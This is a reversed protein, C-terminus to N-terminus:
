NAFGVHKRYCILTHFSPWVTKIWASVLHEFKDPCSIKETLQFQILLKQDHIDEADDQRKDNGIGYQEPGNVIGFQAVLSVVSFIGDIGIRVM